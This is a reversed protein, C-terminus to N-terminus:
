YTIPLCDGEDTFKQPINTKFYNLDSPLYM